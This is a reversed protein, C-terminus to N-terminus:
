KIGRRPLDSKAYVLIEPNIAALNTAIGDIQLPALVLKTQYRFALSYGPTREYFKSFFRNGSHSAEYSRRFPTAFIVYDPKPDRDIDPLTPDELFVHRYADLRPLYEGPTAAMITAGEAINSRMWAEVAYRSDKIMLRDVAIASVLASGFVSVVVATRLIARRGEVFDSLAKGGFLSLLLCLPLAYRDYTYRVICIFSLFYGLGSLLLALSIRTKSRRLFAAALGYFSIIFLPWGLCFRIQKATLALLQLYGAPSPSVMQFVERGPGVIFRLHNVFGSFNFLLNFGLIFAAAAGAFALAYNGILKKVLTRRPEQAAKIKRRDMWLLLLFPLPYLGYAQDKTCVALAATLAFLGYYRSKGTKLLRIFFYLSWVFWFLYPVEMNVTKAYYPFPVLLAAILAAFAGARRSFIERGCAYILYILGAAMLVTLLRAALMLTSYGALTSTDILRWKQLASFPLFLLSLLYYHILPYKSYWGGSFHAAMGEQVQYPLIEDPAWSWSNPLGWWVATLNLVISVALVLVIPTPKKTGSGFIV